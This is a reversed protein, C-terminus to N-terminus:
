ISLFSLCSVVFELQHYMPFFLLFEPSILAYPFLYFFFFLFSLVTSHWHFQTTVAIPKAYAVNMFRMMTSPSNCMGFFMVLPEFLGMPTIFAAKHEDGEAIRINNYGQRLDLKTFRKMGQLGEILTEIRPLPYSDKITNENLERYDQCPRMEETEKKDVFFFPAAYPSSSPRIYGKELNDEIFEKLLGGQKKNLPYVKHPRPTWGPKLEIKHDWPQHEPLRKAQEKQFRKKWQHFESPVIEEVTKTAKGLSAEQALKTAMNISRAKVSPFCITAKEWNISPNEKKLWHYGLIFDQDGIHAVLFRTKMRRGQSWYELDVAEKVEKGQNETGDINYM